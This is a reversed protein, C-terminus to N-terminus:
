SSHNAWALSCHFQSVHLSKNQPCGQFILFRRLDSPEIPELSSPVGIMCIINPERWALYTLKAPLPDKGILPM